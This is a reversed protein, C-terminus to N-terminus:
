KGNAKVWTEMFESFQKFEIGKHELEKVSKLLGQVLELAKEHRQGDVKQAEREDLVFGCTCFKTGAGYKKSCKPCEIMDMANSKQKYDEELGADSLLKDKVDRSVLHIYTSPMNSDKSWGFMKRMLTEQYGRRACDTARAHRFAHPNAPKKIGALRKIRVLNKRVSTALIQHGFTLREMSVWIPFDDREKFPHVNLWDRFYSLSNILYVKRQGTKGDVEVTATRGELSIDSYKINLWESVRCGSEFLTYVLAADRTNGAKNVMALVDEPTLVDKENINKSTNGGAYIWDVCSPYEKGGNLWKFFNKTHIKFLIKTAESFEAKAKDRNNSKSRPKLDHLFNVVDDKALDEFKKNPFKKALLICTYVKWRLTGGKLGAVMQERYFRKITEKNEKIINAEDIEKFYREIAVDDGYAM